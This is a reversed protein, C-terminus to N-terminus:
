GFKKELKILTDLSSYLKFSREVLGSFMELPNHVKKQMAIPPLRGGVGREVFIDDQTHCHSLSLESMSIPTTYHMM